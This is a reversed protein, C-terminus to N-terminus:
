LPSRPARVVPGEFADARCSRVRAAACAREAPVTPQFTGPRGDGRGDVASTWQDSRGCIKHAIRLRVDIIRPPISCGGAAVVPYSRIDRHPAVAYHHATKPRETAARAM